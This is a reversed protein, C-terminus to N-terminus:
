DDQRLRGGEPACIGYNVLPEAADAGLKPYATPAALQRAKAQQAAPVLQPGPKADAAPM